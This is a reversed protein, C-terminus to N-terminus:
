KTSNQRPVNIPEKSPTGPKRPYKGPTNNVKKIVIIKRKIDTNPLILEEITEIKGGLIEIARKSNQIEEEIDYSKMCICKGGIKVLPLMYEALVNLSAVARSMAIDFNERYQKNQGAEEVRAHITNIDKLNLRIIVEQLFNLRKNLSDLLTINTEPKAIKLPIGPFGAGTGVDVIKSENNIYKVITMSDVFHKLIIEDPNTITTLNIKENWELLLQMYNYFLELQKQNLDPCLKYLKKEFEVKEM